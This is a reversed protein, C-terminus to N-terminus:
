QSNPRFEDQMPSSTEEVVPLIVTFTSGHGEKSDVVIDGKHKRVIDYSISLGLGTGKGAEKTTFFPEFIKCLATEPIGCGTDSISIHITGDGNWTKIKIEGQKDIAHSANVLLNMFVQNLQQPYCQTPPLTGYDKTVTAKYKLENWVINLTSEVCENINALTYESDDIRAFSKLNQVIRKIRETGDLSESILDKVDRLVYDLKLTRRKERLRESVEESSVSGIVESQENIYDMLKQMYKGLTGLNSSVFGTPNNIEHAVGAALQGISAMKEQQIIQKQTTQLYTYANKLEEEAKKRETIDRAIHVVQIVEGEDNKIPATDIEVFLKEGTESYHVHEASAHTGQEVTKRLPCPDDDSNCPAPLNHTVAHCTKGIAEEKTIKEQALFANNVDVLLFTRADIVSLADHMSDIVTQFFRNNHELTTRSERLDSAMKNFSRSLDGIEDITHTDINVTFNGEGIERAADKLRKMSRSIKGAIVSGTAISILIIFLCAIFIINHAVALSTLVDEKKEALEEDEHALARDIADLFRSLSGELRNKHDMLEDPDWQHIKMIMDNSEAVLEKGAADIGRFFRAEDPFFGVYHEYRKISDSYLQMGRSKEDKEGKMSLTDSHRGTEAMETQHFFVYEVTSSAISLGAFKLDQLSNIVPLTRDSLDTFNHRIPVTQRISVYGVIITLLAILIYGALIKYLIKM